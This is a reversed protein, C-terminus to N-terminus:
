GVALSAYAGVRGGAADALGALAVAASVYGAVSRGALAEARAREAHGRAADPDKRDLARGAALLALSSAVTHDGGAVAEADAALQEALDPYGALQLQGVGDVLSLV